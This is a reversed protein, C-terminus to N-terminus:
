NWSLSNVNLRNPTKSSIFVWTRKRINMVKSEVIYFLFARCHLPTNFNLFNQFNRRRRTSWNNINRSRKLSKIVDNISDYACNKMINFTFFFTEIFLVQFLLNKIYFISKENTINPIFRYLNIKFNFIGWLVNFLKLVSTQLVRWNTCEM